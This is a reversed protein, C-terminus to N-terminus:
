ASVKTAGGFSRGELAFYVKCLKSVMKCCNLLGMDNETQARELPEVKSVPQQLALHQGHTCSSEM